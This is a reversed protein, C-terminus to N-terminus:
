AKEVATKGFMKEFFLKFISALVFIPAVFVAMSYFIFYTMGIIDFALGSTTGTIFSAYERCGLLELLGYIILILIARALFGRSSFFRAKVFSKLAKIM